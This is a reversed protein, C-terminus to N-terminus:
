LCRLKKILKPRESKKMPYLGIVTESGSNVETLGADIVIVKKSYENKIKDWEKNDAKLVVKRFSVNLWEEILEFTERSFPPLENVNSEIDMKYFHFYNLLIMQAAHACQAAVKGTGMGLTENVIFYMVLPDEQTARSEVEKLSNPDKM